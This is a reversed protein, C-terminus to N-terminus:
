DARLAETPDVRLARRTPVYSALMAIAAVLLAVVVVTAPDAPSVAYLMSELARSTATAAVAGLLVGALALRLGGGIVMRAVASAEAGLAVRIGIERTRQSVTYSIVGYLGIGSLALAVISFATLLAMAFRAPALSDRVNDDGITVGRFLVRPDASSVARRLSATMRGVPGAVRVLLTMIGIRPIPLRYVRADKMPDHAGPMRIDDVVGVVTYSDSMRTNGTSLHAGVAHGDPWFRHALAQNIVIEAPMGSQGAGATTEWGASDPLRGQLLSMGAIRFYNPSMLTPSFGSVQHTRGSADPDTELPERAAYPEDPLTGVAAGTVGPVARVSELLERGVAVKAEVPMRPILVEVSLLGHPDFGLPIQELAAFSRVLLGAGVLLVLSMAIEFVILGSRIRRSAVNGAGTRTEGRLVDAAARAGAFLAPACGFLMGTLVAFAGSWWLVASDIHIGALNQLEPPRLAVIIRLALWALGLGLIGGALALIVSETLVQRALRARGAGLAVRVAFERRRTWARSMLLNAVNACAIALLVGVAAFLVTVARVERPDLFDQARMARVSVHTGGVAPEEDAIAQLEATAHQATAGPRLKAYLNADRLSDLSAPLWIGAAAERWHRIFKPQMPLGMDRPAVAVITYARDDVRVTQGIVDARGGYARKWLGYGIMAVAAHSRVDAPTFSRGLAPRLGLLQLYNPTIFAHVTDEGEDAEDSMVAIADIEVAALTEISHARGVWAQVTAAPPWGEDMQLMAIRNGDPYPLPALLVRHVVTFIATNAGMGLALTLVALATFGASKRFQRAAYRIDQTWDELWELVMHRRAHRVARSESYTRFEDADGFRRMAEAEADRESLGQTLLEAVRMDFHFRIEDDMERVLRARSEPLRFLRRAGTPLKPTHM